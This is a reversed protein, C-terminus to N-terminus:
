TGKYHLIRHYLFIQRHTPLLIEIKGKKGENKLPVLFINMCLVWDFWSQLHICHMCLKGISVLFSSFLRIFRKICLSTNFQRVHRKDDVDVIEAVSFQINVKTPLSPPIAKNYDETLNYLKKCKTIRLYIIAILCLKRFSM